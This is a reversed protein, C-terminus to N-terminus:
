KWDEPVAKTQSGCMAPLICGDVFAGSLFGASTELQFSDSRERRELGASCATASPSWCEGPVAVSAAVRSTQAASTGRWRQLHVCRTGTRQRHNEAASRPCHCGVAPKCLVRGAEALCLVPTRVSDTSEARALVNTLQGSRAWGACSAQASGQGQRLGSM